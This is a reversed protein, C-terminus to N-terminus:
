DASLWGHELWSGGLRWDAVLRGGALWWSYKYFKISIYLAESVETLTFIFFIALWGGADLWGVLRRGALALWDPALRWGTALSGNALRWGAVLWGGARQLGAALCGSGLLWDAM